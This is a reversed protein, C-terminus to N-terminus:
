VKFFTFEVLSMVLQLSIVILMVSFLIICILYLYKCVCSMYFDDSGEGSVKVARVYSSKRVIADRSEGESNVEHWDGGTSIFLSADETVSDLVESMRQRDIAVPNSKSPDDDGATRKDGHKRSDGHKGSSNLHKRKSRASRRANSPTLEDLVLHGVRRQQSRVGTPLDDTTRSKRHTEKVDFNRNLMDENKSDKAGDFPPAQFVNQNLESNQNSIATGPEASTAVVEGSRLPHSTDDIVEVATARTTVDSDHRRHPEATEEERPNIGTTVLVRTTDAEATMADAEKHLLVDSADTLNPPSEIGDPCEVEPSVESQNERFTVANETVVRAVDAPFAKRCDDMLESEQCCDNVASGSPEASTMVQSSHVAGISDCTDILCCTDILNCTDTVRCRTVNPINVEIEGDDKESFKLRKGSDREEGNKDHVIESASSISESGHKGAVPHTEWPVLPAVPPTELDGPVSEDSRLEDM